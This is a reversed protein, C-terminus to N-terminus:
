AETTYKSLNILAKYLNNLGEPNDSYIECLKCFEVTITHEFGFTRIIADQMAEITMM